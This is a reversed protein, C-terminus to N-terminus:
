YSIFSRHKEKCYTNGGLFNVDDPRVLQRAGNLKFRDQNPQVKRIVYELAFSLLLPSLAARQKPGIKIPLTDFMQKDM